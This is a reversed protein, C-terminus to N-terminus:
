ETKKDGEPLGAKRLGEIIPQLERLYTPNDSMSNARDAFQQVTYGPKLKLLDAVAARADADHGVWAYAAALTAYTFYKPLSTISKRCWEIAQDWQALYAHLACANYEWVWHFPDHPSLRLATEVGSLGEAARGIYVKAAGAKFHAYPDNPNLAIAAEEEAIAADWRMEALLSSAKADHARASDPNAFLAQSALAGARATDEAPNTSFGLTVETALM